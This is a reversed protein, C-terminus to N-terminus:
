TEKGHSGGLNLAIFILALIVGSIFLFGSLSNLFSTIKDFCGGPTEIYIKDKDLQDITKRLAKQSSSFSFLTTSLSVTWVVWASYLLWPYEIPLNGLMNRVFVLTVGLAGGSLTLIAKDYDEYSKQEIDTLLNRYEQISKQDENEM